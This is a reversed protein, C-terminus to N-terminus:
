PGPLKRTALAPVGCPGCPEDRPQTNSLVYKPFGSKTGTPYAAPSRRLWGSCHVPRAYCDEQSSRPNLARGAVSRGHTLGCSVRGRATEDLCVCGPSSIM